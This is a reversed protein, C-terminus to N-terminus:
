GLYCVRNSQSSNIKTFVYYRGEEFCCDFFSSKKNKDSLQGVLRLVSDQEERYLCMKFDGVQAGAVGVVCGFCQEKFEM